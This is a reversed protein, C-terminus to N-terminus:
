LYKEPNKFHDNIRYYTEKLLTLDEEKKNKSEFILYSIAIFVFYIAMEPIIQWRSSFFSIKKIFFLLIIPIGNILLIKLISKPIPMYKFLKFIETSTLAAFIFYTLSVSIAIGTAGLNRTLVIAMFFNFILLSFTNYFQWNSKGSMVLISSAPGSLFIFIPGISLITLFIWAPEFKPNIAFLIEKSFFIMFFIVPLGLLFIWRTIIHHFEKLGKIDKELIFKSIRPEMPVIFANIFILFLMSIKYGISFLGVKYNSEHIGLIITNSWMLINYFLMPIILPFSFSLLGKKDINQPKKLPLKKKVNSFIFISILSCIMMTFTFSFIAGKLKFGLAFLSLFLLFKLIPELINKVVISYRVIKLAVTFSLLIGTVITFPISISLIDLVWKFNKSKFLIESIYKSSTLIVIISILSTTISFYLSFKVLSFLEGFKKESFFESGKKVIGTTLGGFSLITAIHTISIAMTYIGYNSIGILIPLFINYLFGVGKEVFQGVFGLLAGKAVGSLEDNKNIKEDM